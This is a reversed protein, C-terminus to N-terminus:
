SSCVRFKDYISVSELISVQIVHIATIHEIITDSFGPYLADLKANGKIATLLRRNKEKVESNALYLPFDDVDNVTEEDDGVEDHEGASDKDERDVSRDDRPKQEKDESKEKDKENHDEEHEDKEKKEEPPEIKARVKKKLIEEFKEEVSLLFRDRDKIWEIDVQRQIDGLIEATKFDNILRSFAQFDFKIQGDPTEYHNDVIKLNRLIYKKRREELAFALSNNTHYTFSDNGLKYISDPFYPAHFFDPKSEEYTHTYEPLGIMTEPLITLGKWVWKLSNRISVPDKGWLREPIEYLQAITFAITDRASTFRPWNKNYRYRETRKEAGTQLLNSLEWVHEQNPFTESPVSFKATDKVQQLQQKNLYKLKGTEDRAVRDLESEFPSKFLNDARLQDKDIATQSLDTLM